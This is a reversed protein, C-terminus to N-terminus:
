RFQPAGQQAPGLGLTRWVLHFGSAIRLRSGRACFIGVGRPHSGAIEMKGCETLEGAFEARANEWEVASFEIGVVFYPEPSSRRDLRLLRGRIAAGKPLLLSGNHRVDRWVRAHLLDGVSATRSDIATELMVPVLVGAPLDVVRAQPKPLETRPEAPADFSITSESQYERCRSFQIANRYAEGSLHTLVVESREPLLASSAGINERAYYIRILVEALDVAAPMQDGYVDLRLLDLSVPDFWFSGKAAVVASTNGVRIKFKSLFQPLRYDYRVARRGDPSEEGGYQFAINDSIFLNHALLAFVGNAIVGGTVFSAVDKDEFHHAGPWAFLEKGRVTSVELRVTDGAQFSDAPPIRASREITELCTYNVIRSLDQRIKQKFRALLLVQPPLDGAAGSTAAAAALLTLAGWQNCRMRHEPYRRALGVQRRVPGSVIKEDM